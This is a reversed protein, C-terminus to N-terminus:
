LISKNERPSSPRLATHDPIFERFQTSKQNIHISIRESRAFRVIHQWRVERLHASQFWDQGTAECATQIAGGAPARISVGCGRVIETVVPFRVGRPHASQFASPMTAVYRALRLGSHRLSPRSTPHSSFRCVQKQLHTTKQKQKNSSINTKPQTQIPLGFSHHM